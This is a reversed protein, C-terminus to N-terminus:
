SRVLADALVSWFQDIRGPLETEAETRRILHIGVVMALLVMAVTEAPLDTGPAGDPRARLVAGALDREVTEVLSPEGTAPPRDVLLRFAARIRINGHYQRSLGLVLERLVEFAPAESGGSGDMLLRWFEQAQRVLEEALQEKTGFHGYLAGKTMGTRAAVAQVTANAYGQLAFEEAAADLILERTRRAREQKM